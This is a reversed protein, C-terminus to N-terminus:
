GNHKQKHNRIEILQAAISIAIEEVSESNIPLGIPAHIKEWQQATAWGEDISKKKILAIKKASGIMGIYAADTGITSKLAEADGKHGHTVIAIYTNKTKRLQSMATGIDDVIINDAEPIFMSNAYEKRDDIVTVEFDILRALHALAKGIHGAGAIILKSPPQLLELIICTTKQKQSPYFEITSKSKEGSLLGRIIENLEQVNFENKRSETVWFRHIVFKQDSEKLINTILVGPIGEQFSHKIQEFISLHLFPDADILFNMKGGCVAEQDQSLEKDLDFSYLGSLKSQIANFALNQVKREIIGGGVTGSLLGSQNFLAVSGPKQPTSGSTGTVTALALSSDNANHKLIQLYICKM